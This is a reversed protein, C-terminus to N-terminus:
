MFPANLLRCGGLLRCVHSSPVAHTSAVSVPASRGCRSCCTLNTAQLRSTSCTVLLHPLPSLTWPCCCGTLLTCFCFTLQRAGLSYGQICACNATSTITFVSLASLVPSVFCRGLAVLCGTGSVQASRAVHHSHGQQQTGPQNSHQGAAPCCWREAGTSPGCDLLCRCCVLLIARCLWTLCWCGISVQVMVPTPQSLTHKAGLLYRQVVAAITVNSAHLAHM